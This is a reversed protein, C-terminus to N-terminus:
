SYNGGDVAADLKLMDSFYECDYTNQGYNQEM